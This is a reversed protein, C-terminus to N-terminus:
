TFLNNEANDEIFDPTEEMFHTLYFKNKTSYRLEQSLKFIKTLLVCVLSSLILHVKTELKM